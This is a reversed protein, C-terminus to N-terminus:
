RKLRLSPISKYRYIFILVAACHLLLRIFLLIMDREPQPIKAIYFIHYYQFFALGNAAAMSFVALSFAFLRNVVNLYTLYLYGSCAFIVAIIVGPAYSSVM